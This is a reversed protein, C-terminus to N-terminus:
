ATNRVFGRVSSPTTHQTYIVTTRDLAIGDRFTNVAVVVSSQPDALVEIRHPGSSGRISGAGPTQGHLRWLRRVLAARRATSKGPSAVIADVWDRDSASQVPKPKNKAFL